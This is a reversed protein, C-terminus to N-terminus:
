RRYENHFTIIHNTRQTLTLYDLRATLVIENGNSMHKLRCMYLNDLTSAHRIVYGDSIHSRMREFYDKIVRDRVTSDTLQHTM